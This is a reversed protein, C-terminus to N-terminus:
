ATSSGLIRWPRAQSSGREVDADVRAATAPAGAPADAPQEDGAIAPDGQDASPAMKASRSGIGLGVSM